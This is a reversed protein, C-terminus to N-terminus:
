GGSTWCLQSKRGLTLVARCLPTVRHSYEEIEKAKAKLQPLVTSLGELLSRVHVKQRNQEPEIMDLASSSAFSSKSTARPIEKAPIQLVEQRV